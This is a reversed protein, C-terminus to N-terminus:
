EGLFAKLIWATKEHVEMRSAMLSATGEDDRAQAEKLVKLCLKALQAHGKQLHNVMQLPLEPTSEESWGESLRRKFSPAIKEDLTRIREAIQDIAGSLDQYDLGFREHLTIFFPGSVNWHCLQTDLSLQYTAVLLDELSSVVPNDRADADPALELGTFPRKSKKLPVQTINLEKM